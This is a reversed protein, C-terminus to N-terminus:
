RETELPCPGSAAGTIMRTEPDSTCASSMSFSFDEFTCSASAGAACGSGADPPSFPFFRDRPLGRSSDMVSRAKM